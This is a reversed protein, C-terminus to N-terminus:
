RGGGACACACGACACACACGGSSRGGGSSSSVPPPNTVQTVGSTFGDLRTVIGGATREIGSVVAGAFAAGPLTPLTMPSGGGGSRGPTGISGGDMRATSVRSRWPRYYAWWPPMYVPGSTFTQNTRTEFEKDLMMWELGQDFHKSQVEPVTDSQVQQWARDVISKYYAITEKRSFGKLRKDLEKILEVVMKQLKKEDLSGDSRISGLFELEYDRWNAEPLPDVKELTLPNEELVVVGRKKLIGFLIMTLVRNLPTELLIAAEVATLGRKIGVGEVSLAPPLYKMKRKKSQVTGLLPLVVFFFIGFISFCGQESFIFGFIKKVTATFAFGLLPAKHVTNVYKRPFSIGHLYRTYGNTEPYAYTFVFRGDQVTASHYQEKHYRPEDSTLGPPFHFNVELYTKGVANKKDYYHPAFELSAYDKDKSDAYVMEKINIRFFLTGQKGPQITHQGLHIEVGIDVMESQYIRSLAVRQGEGVGPSFSAQASKLDYTNNPLGIDVIDIAHAFQACTFTLIYEIDASGDANVYVHSINRDVSFKYSQASATPTIGILTLCAVLSFITILRFQKRNM